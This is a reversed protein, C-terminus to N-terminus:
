QGSNERAYSSWWDGPHATSLTLSGVARLIFPVRTMSYAGSVSLREAFEESDGGSQDVAKFAAQTFHRQTYDSNNWIFRDNSLHCHDAEDLFTTLTSYIDTILPELVPELQVLVGSHLAMNLAICQGFDLLLPFTARMEQAHGTPVAFHPLAFLYRSSRQLQDETLPKWGEPLKVQAKIIEHAGRELALLASGTMALGLDESSYMLRALHRVDKSAQEYRGDKMAKLFRLQSWFRLVNADPRPENARSYLPDREFLEALPGHTALNWHDYRRLENWWGFDLSSLLHFHEPNYIDQSDIEFTSLLSEPLRLPAQVESNEILRWHLKSNLWAGADHHYPPEPFIGLSSLVEQDHFFLEHYKEHQALWEVQANPLAAAARSYGIYLFTGVIGILVVLIFSVGGAILWLTKKIGM